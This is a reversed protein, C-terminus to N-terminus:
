TLTPSKSKTRRRAVASMLGLGALMLAYTEPEPVATTIQQRSGITMQDFAFSDVGSSTNGFTIGTFTDITSILGWFLVGGGPTNTPNGVNFVQNLGGSTSVTVQGNFDGIDIGMFGFAAIPDSFAISFSSNSQWFNNGETAYRGFGNTAGPATSQVNGNGNLTATGAVGFNVALPGSTGVGIAEFSETGVGVLGGLFSNRAATANAFSALRSNEGGGIDYGTYVTTQASTLPSWCTTVLSTALIGLKKVLSMTLKERM